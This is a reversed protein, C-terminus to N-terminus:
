SFPSIFGLGAENRFHDNWQDYEYRAMQQETYAQHYCTVATAAEDKGVAVYSTPSEDASM